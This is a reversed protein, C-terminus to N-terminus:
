DQLNRVISELTAVVTNGNWCSLSSEATWLSEGSDIRCFSSDVSRYQFPHQDQKIMMKCLSRGHISKTTNVDTFVVQKMLKAPVTCLVSGFSEPGILNFQFKM